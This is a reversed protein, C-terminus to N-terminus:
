AKESLSFDKFTKPACNYTAKFLKNFYSVNNYGVAYAIESVNAEKSESLLRAAETLRLKNLYGSFTLGLEEKLIDNIKARNIGLSNTVMEISLDPNVYETAIFTLVAVKEKDKQPEISLKKYAILPQDQRLKEKLDEVLVTTYRRFLWVFSLVWILAVLAGIVYLHGTDRGQLRVDAIKVHIKTNSPTYLSNTWAFGMVKDQHYGTDGLQLHYQGLWWDPTFIEDFAINVTAWDNSCVFAKSSVRRTVPNNLDTVKDDFSFLTFILVNKPDCVIKFSINRYKSLDVLRYPQVPDTFNFSYHVYPFQQSPDLM